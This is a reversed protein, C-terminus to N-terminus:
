AVRGIMIGKPIRLELIVNQLAFLEPRAPDDMERIWSWFGFRQVPPALINDKVLESGEVCRIWYPDPAVLFTVLNGPWWRNFTEQGLLGTELGTDCVLWDLWPVARLRGKFIGIKNGDPGKLDEMEYDAFVANVSGGQAQLTTNKLVYRWVTSDTLVLALPAGVLQQFAQNIQDLQTSIDTGTNSWAASIINGGGTPNLNAQWAGTFGPLNGSPILYNVTMGPNSGLSMVPVMDDGVFQFSYQGQTLLGGWMFERFNDHTERLTRAQAELYSAGQRDRVGANQGLQRINNLQEYDLPVKTYCRGFTSTQRGVPNAPLASAPTNPQRGYAAKRVRDYIDWSYARGLVTETKNNPGGIQGGFIRSLPNGPMYLRSVIGTVVSPTLVNSIVAM